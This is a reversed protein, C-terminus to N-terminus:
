IEVTGGGAGAVQVTVYNGGLPSGLTSADIAWQPYPDDSAVYTAYPTLGGAAALAQLESNTYSTVAWPSGNGSIGYNVTATM